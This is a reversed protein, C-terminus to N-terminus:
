NEAHPAGMTPCTCGELFGVHNHGIFLGPGIKELWVPKADPKEDVTLSRGGDIPAIPLEGLAEFKEGFDQVDDHGERRIETIQYTFGESEGTEVQVEGFLRRGLRRFFGPNTLPFLERTVDQGPPNEERTEVGEAAELDPDPVAVPGPAPKEGAAAEEALKRAAIEQAIREGNMTIMQGAVKMTESREINLRLADYAITVPVLRALMVNRKHLPQSGFAGMEPYAYGNSDFELEGFEPAHMRTTRGGFSSGPKRPKRPRKM